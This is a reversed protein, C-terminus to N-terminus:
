SRVRRENYFDHVKEYNEVFTLANCVEDKLHQYWIGGKDRFTNVGSPASIGAGSFVFIKQNEKLM